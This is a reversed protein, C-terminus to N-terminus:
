YGQFRWNSYGLEAKNKKVFNDLKNQIEEPMNTDFALDFIVGESVVVRGDWSIRVKQKRRPHLLLDNLINDYNEYKRTKIGSGIEHVVRNVIGRGRMGSFEYLSLVVGFIIVVVVLSFRRKKM